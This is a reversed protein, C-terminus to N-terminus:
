GPSAGGEGVSCGASAWALASALWGVVGSGALGSRPCEVFEVDHSKTAIRRLLTSKGAGREGVLAFLTGGPADIRRIVEDVQEDAVSPVIEKSPSSPGLARFTDNPLPEYRVRTAADARQSMGRRFLYALVRRSLDFSSV